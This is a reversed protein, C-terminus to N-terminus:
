PKCGYVPQDGLDGGFVGDPDDMGDKKRVDTNRRETTFRKGLSHFTGYGNLDKDIMVEKEMDFLAQQHTFFGIM